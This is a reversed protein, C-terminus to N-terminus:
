FSEELIKQVEIDITANHQDSTLDKKRSIYSVDEGFM